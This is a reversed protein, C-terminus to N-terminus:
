IDLYMAKLLCLLELKLVDLDDRRTGQQRSYLCFDLIALTGDLIVTSNGSSM